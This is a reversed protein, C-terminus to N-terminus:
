CMWMRYMGPRGEPRAKFGYRHYFSEVGEAAMLGIFSNRGAHEDIYAMIRDMIMVGFGRGQFEPLVVVDQIYFYIGGDGVIRGCGIVRGQHLLCLSYLANDLGRAAAEREVEEWDVAARLQQYEEVTPPREVFDFETNLKTM